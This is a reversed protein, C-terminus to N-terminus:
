PRLLCCPMLQKVRVDLRGNGVLRFDSERYHKVTTATLEGGKHKGKWCSLGEMFAVTQSNCYQQGLSICLLEYEVWTQVYSGAVM